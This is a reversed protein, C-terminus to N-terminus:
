VFKNLEQFLNFIIHKKKKKKKKEKSTDYYYTEFTDIVNAKEFLRAGEDNLFRREISRSM